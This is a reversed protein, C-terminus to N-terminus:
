AANNGPKDVSRCVDVLKNVEAVGQEVARQASASADTTSLKMQASLTILLEGRDYPKSIITSAGVKQATNRQAEDVKVAASAVIPGTHGAARIQQITSEATPSDVDMECLVIDFMSGPVTLASLGAQEDAVPVVRLQTDRLHHAVLARDMSQGDILLMRGVLTAGAAASAGGAATGPAPGSGDDYLKAFIKRDFRVGVQHFPGSVHACYVVKGNLADEGGLRLPLWLTVRTGVHLFSDYIFGIGSPSLNRTAVVRDSTSGGPHMIKAPVEQRRFRDRDGERRNRFRSDDVSDLKDLVAAVTTKPKGSRSPDTQPNPGSRTRIRSQASQKQAPRDMERKM